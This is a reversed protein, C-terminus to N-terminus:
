RRWDNIHVVGTLLALVAGLSASWSIDLGKPQWIVLILTLIFIAGALVM